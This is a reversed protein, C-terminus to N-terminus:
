GHRPLMRMNQPLREFPAVVVQVSAIPALSTATHRGPPRHLLSVTAPFITTWDAAWRVVLIDRLLPRRKFEILHNPVILCASNCQFRRTRSSKRVGWGWSKELRLTIICLGNESSSPRLQTGCNISSLPLPSGRVAVGSSFVSPPQHNFM